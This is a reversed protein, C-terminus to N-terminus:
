SRRAPGIDDRVVAGPVQRPARTPLMYVVHNPVADPRALPSPILPPGFRAPPLILPPKPQPSSQRIITVLTQVAHRETTALASCRRDAIASRAPLSSRTLSRTANSAGAAGASATRITTM